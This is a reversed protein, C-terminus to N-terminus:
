EELSPLWTAFASLMGKTDYTLSFDEVGFWGEYGVSKLDSLVQKWDVIGRDMAVSRCGWPEEKTAGPYWGANKVHVHALHPGLLELGMRYNEYGEFVLNGPDYLVGIHEPDFREVLRHALSASATITGFHTEVLGKVGYEASLSQVATLYGVAQELLERYHASQGYGPIGVRISKAGLLAAHRMARRTGEIDGCKLYATLAVTTIGQQRASEGLEVLLEDTAELPDITCLNNGWFSPEEQKREPSNTTYRWEVGQLGCERLVPLIEEPTYDPTATTFVSLKM